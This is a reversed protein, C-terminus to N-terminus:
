LWERCILLAAERQDATGGSAVWGADPESVLIAVGDITVVGGSAPDIDWGSCRDLAQDLTM